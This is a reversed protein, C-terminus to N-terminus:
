SGVLVVGPKLTSGKHAQYIALVQAEGRDDPQEFVAWPGPEDPGAGLTLRELVQGHRVKSLVEPGPHLDNLHVVAAAASLVPSEEWGFADAVSYVGVRTRRLAALHAGGGLAIGLDHALTRVYTGTSCEVTARFVLPMGGPASSPDPAAGGIWTQGAWEAEFTPTVEFRDVRIPRPKREVEKGERALEHLRKGDVRIASVMPPIQESEGEMARAAQVVDDATLGSMDFTGTTEGGADQTSTAAGFTIIAEYTKPLGVLFTLLKTARGVGVLLLGTADPDLTGAHGVAPTDLRRRLRGVVDHSTLGAEKDVLLLGTPGALKRSRRSM